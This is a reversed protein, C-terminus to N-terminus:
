TCVASGKGNGYIPVRKKVISPCIHENDVYDKRLQKAEQMSTATTLVEPGDGFGYDYVLRYEDETKRVYAM